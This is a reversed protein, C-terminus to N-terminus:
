NGEAMDMAMDAADYEGDAEDCAACVVEEDEYNTDRERQGSGKVVFGDDCPCGCVSCKPSEDAFLLNSM